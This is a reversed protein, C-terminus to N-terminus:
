AARNGLNLRIELVQRNQLVSYDRDLLTLVSQALRARMAAEMDKLAQQIVPEAAQILAADLQARLVKLFNDEFQSAQTM